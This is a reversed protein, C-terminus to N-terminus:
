SKRLPGIIVFFFFFFFFILFRWFFFIFFLLRALPFFCFFPLFLSLFFITNINFSFPKKKVCFKHDFIIEDVYNNIISIISIPLHQVLDFGRTLLFLFFVFFFYFYSM